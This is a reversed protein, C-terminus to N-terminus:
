VPSSISKFIQAFCADFWRQEKVLDKGENPLAVLSVSAAKQTLNAISSEGFSGPSHNALGISALDAQLDNVLAVFNKSNKSVDDSVQPVYLAHVLEDASKLLLDGNSLLKDLTRPPPLEITSSPRLIIHDVRKVLTYTFKFLTYASKLRTLEEQSAVINQKKPHKMDDLEWDDDFDGYGEDESDGENNGEAEEETVMEQVEKECDSLGGLVGQWRKRVAEQNTRPIGRARVIAEHVTGTRVLYPETTGKERIANRHHADSAYVGLLSEFGTLVDETSWRMERSLTRGYQAGDISCACSALANVHSVLEKAPSLAASYTLDSPKLAIALKTADHYLLSLLSNYDNLRTDLSADTNTAPLQTITGSDRLAKLATSCTQSALQLIAFVVSGAQQVDRLVIINHFNEKILRSPPHSCENTAFKWETQLLELLGCRGCWTNKSAGGGSPNGCDLCVDMFGGLIRATPSAEVNHVKFELAKRYKYFHFFAALLNIEVAKPEHVLVCASTFAKGLMADSLRTRANYLLVSLDSEIVVSHKAAHRGDCTDSNWPLLSIRNKGYLSTDIM